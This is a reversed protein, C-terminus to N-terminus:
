FRRTVSGILANETYESSGSSGQHRYVLSVSTREGLTKNYGLTFARRRSEATSTGEGKSNTLSFTGNLSSNPTLRHILSVSAGKSTTRDYAALTDSAVLALDPTLAERQDRSVRLALTNRAGIFSVGMTLRTQLYETNTVFGLTPFDKALAEALAHAQRAREVPDAITGELSAFIGPYFIDAASLLSLSDASSVNRSYSLEFNSLPRRHKFSLNYGTGFFRDEMTASIQTRPTPSWDFGGGTFTRDVSNGTVYDNREHGAIARLMLQPTVRYMLTGRLVQEDVSRTDSGGDVQTDSYNLSWGLPGYAVPNSLGVTLTGQNRGNLVSGGGSSWDKRYQINGTTDHGLHFALRPALYYRRVVEQNGPDLENGIPGGLVSTNEKQISAGFNVFLLDDIATYDGRGTLRISATNRTNDNAYWRMPASAALNGTLRGGTRSVSVAPSIETIWEGEKGGGSRAGVNDTYTETLRVSPTMDVTAAFGVTACCSLAVAVGIPKRAFASQKELPRQVSTGRATAMVTAMVM